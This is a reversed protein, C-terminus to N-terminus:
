CCNMSKMEDKMMARDYQCCADLKNYAEDTAKFGPTDYGTKAIAQQIKAANTSTSEYKVTLEKTKHDWLAYSAGATKASKEIKKKCTGCEGAVKFTETKDQGFSLNALCTTLLIISFIKLTKM